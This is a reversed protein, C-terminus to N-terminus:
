SGTQAKFVLSSDGQKLTLRNGDMSLTAGGKLMQFFKTELESLGADPCLMRTSAVAQVSLVDDRLEGAGQYNNCIRGSVLFDDGFELTPSPLDHPGSYDAENVQVLVFKQHMLFEQTLGSSDGVAPAPEEAAPPPLPAAVPVPEAANMTVAAPRDPENQCGTLMILAAAMTLLCRSLKM